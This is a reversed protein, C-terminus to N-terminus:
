ELVYYSGKTSGKRKLLGKEVLSSLLNHAQQRSVNLKDAIETSTLEPEKTMIDLVGKEKPTPRDIMKLTRMSNQAKSLASQLSYKIGDTFYELWETKNGEDATHLMDSYTIRDIDYYDDLIFYKNIRYGAKLFLLATFIRCARGNGDEFPHIYVFEHHFIGTKLFIPLETEKEEWEILEELAKKIEPMAHYPPLHKIKFSQSDNEGKTYRGVAVVENRFYGAKQHLNEFLKKHIELILDITIKKDKLSELNDLMAFYNAIEKEDRNAPIRDNLLLNTVQRLNMPNGEIKNSIYTSEILNNTKLNLELKEPLRLAEIQGYLRESTAVNSFIKNTLTYNPKFM